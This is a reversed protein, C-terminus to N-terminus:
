MRMQTKKEEGGAERLGSEDPMQTRKQGEVRRRAAQKSRQGLGDESQASQKRRGSGFELGQKKNVKISLVAEWSCEYAKSHERHSRKGLLATYEALM